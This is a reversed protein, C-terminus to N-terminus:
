PKRTTTSCQVIALRSHQDGPENAYFSIVDYDHANFNERHGVVVLDQVGDNDFDVRNEGYELKVVTYNDLLSAANTGAVGFLITLGAFIAILNPKMGFLRNSFRKGRLSSIWM